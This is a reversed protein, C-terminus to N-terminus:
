PLVTMRGSVTDSGRRFFWHAKVVGDGSSPVLPVCYVGPSEVGCTLTGVPGAPGEITVDLTGGTVPAGNRDTIRLELRGNHYLPVAKWGLRAAEDGADGPIYHLGHRYYESDVVKSVEHGAKVISLIMAVVFIAVLLLLGFLWNKGSVGQRM